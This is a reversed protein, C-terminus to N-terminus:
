WPTLGATRGAAHWARYFADYSPYRTTTAEQRVAYQADTGRFATRDLSADSLFVLATRALVYATTRTDIPAGRSFQEPAMFRSSGFMRGMDNRHPGQRYTDLDVVTLQHADFDYLLAGDYFDGEVWGAADLRAHLDYLSDLAALIAPM